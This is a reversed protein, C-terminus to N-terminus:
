HKYNTLSAFRELWCAIGTFCADAEQQILAITPLGLQKAIRSIAEYVDTPVVIEVKKTKM